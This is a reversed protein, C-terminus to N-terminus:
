LGYGMEKRRNMSLIHKMIDKLKVKITTLNM